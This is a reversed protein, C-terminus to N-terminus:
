NNGKLKERLKAVGLYWCRLFEEWASRTSIPARLLPVVVVEAKIDPSELPWM